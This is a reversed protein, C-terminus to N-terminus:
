PDLPVDLQSWRSEKVDFAHATRQEHSITLLGGDRGAAIERGAAWASDAYFPKGEPLGQGAWNFTKGGDISLYPGGESPRVDGSVALLVRYPNDPDVAVSNCRHRDMDPLGIMPSRHWAAGADISVYLRNSVQAESDSGVAYVRSPLVPSLALDKVHPCVNPFAVPRFSRGGDTSRFYGNRFTGLHVVAADAPDQLLQLVLSGEIGHSTPRWTQGADSTQWVGADTSAYWHRADHPSVTLSFVTGVRDAISPLREWVDAGAGLRYLAGSSMVTVNFDPGAVLLKVMADDGLEIGTSREEWAFGGDDSAVVTGAGGGYLHRPITADQAIFAPAEDSIRDWTQGADKSVFYGAEFERRKGNVRGDYREACLLVRDPNALDFHVQTPFLHPLGVEQWTRGNDTSRFVGADISAALVIDPRAPHQALVPTAAGFPEVQFPAHLVRKWSEGADTSLYVGEPEVFPHGLAVLVHKADRPDLLLTRVAYNGRRAPLRGQLSRWTVGGDTSRYPGGFDTFAYCHQPDKRSVAVNLVRAVGLRSSLWAGHHPMESPSVPKTAARTTAPAPDALLHTALASSLACAVLVLLSRTRM